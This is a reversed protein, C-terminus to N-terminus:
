NGVDATLSATLSATSSAVVENIIPPDFNIPQNTNTSQPSPIPVQKIIIVKLNNNQQQSNEAIQGYVVNLILFLFVFILTKKM